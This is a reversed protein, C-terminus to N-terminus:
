ETSPASPPSVVTGGVGPLHLDSEPLGAEAWAERTRLPPELVDEDTLRFTGWHMGIFGGSGGLDRYARVADEPNMHSTEMFWRPEYAGIPLLSVDFPGHRAGIEQYGAFYGSDGGFYISGGDSARLVFSAWLRGNTRFGRRCWHQAPCATIELTVAKSGEPAGAVALDVPAGGSLSPAPGVLTQDGWDLERVQRVGRGEFWSRYGLPTVWPLADGFRDRLRDVSPADLHDYHSHSLLVADIPPLEDIELAPPLLRRPGLWSIPTARDSFVPDTLLNLGGFQILFTAHGIWTIRTRGEPARPRALRPVETPIAEAPPNPAPPNLLRDRNWRLLASTGPPFPEELWPM